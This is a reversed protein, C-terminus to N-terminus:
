ALLQSFLDPLRNPVGLNGSLLCGLVGPLITVNAYYDGAIRWQRYTRAHLM